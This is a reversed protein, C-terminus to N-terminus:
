QSFNILMDKVMLIYINGCQKVKMLIVYYNVQLTLNFDPRQMLTHLRDKGQPAMMDDVYRM